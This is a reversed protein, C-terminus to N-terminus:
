HLKQQLDSEKSQKYEIGCWCQNLWFVNISHSSYKPVLDYPSRALYGVTSQSPTFLLSHHHCHLSRILMGLIDPWHVELITRRIAKETFHSIYYFSIQRQASNSGTLIDGTCALKLKIYWFGIRADLELLKDWDWHLAWEAERLSSLM